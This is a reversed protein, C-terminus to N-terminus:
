RKEVQGKLAELEAKLRAIEEDKSSVAPAPQPAPLVVKKKPLTCFLIVGTGISFVTYGIIYMPHTIAFLEKFFGYRDLGEKLIHGIYQGKDVEFVLTALCVVFPWSIMGVCSIHKWLDNRSIVSIVAFAMVALGLAAFPVVHCGLTIYNEENLAENDIWNCFFFVMTVFVGAIAIWDMQTLKKEEIDQPADKQAYAFFLYAISSIVATKSLMSFIYQDERFIEYSYENFPLYWAVFYKQFLLAFIVLLLAGLLKKNNRLVDLAFILAFVFLFSAYSLYSALKYMANDLDMDRTDLRNYKEIKVDRFYQIVDSLVMMAFAAVCIWMAWKAYKNDPSDKWLIVFFVLLFLYPVCHLLYNIVSAEESYEGLNISGYIESSTNYLVFCLVALLVIGLCKFLTSQNKM